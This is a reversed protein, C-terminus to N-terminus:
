KSAGPDLRELLDAIPRPLGLSARAEPGFWDRQEGSQVQGPQETVLLSPHISLKLHSLRHVFPPLSQTRVGGFGLIAALDEPSNGEPLSWLGGWIGSPPRKELLVRGSADQVVLVHFQRDGVRTRPKPAPLDDVLGHELAACDGSVPCLRCGPKSRTCVMAGLDMIAQTYDAGRDRPLRKEAEAWLKKQVASRGTWGPVAAHRSLVRRANGDLVPAPRGAAQSVIANATSLGVGPLTSLEEAAEPLEGGFHSLCLRAAKHLNRARAYYGLGSWHALVDDLPAAALTRVDPFSQMWREFYPIVTAVQTQQLMIESIWVRYPTRPRQWPLDKRGHEDWWALLRRAFPEQRSRGM